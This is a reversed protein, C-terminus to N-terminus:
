SFKANGTQNYTATVPYNYVQHNTRNGLTSNNGASRASKRLYGFDAFGGEGSVKRRLDALDAPFLVYYISSFNLEPATIMIRRTGGVGLTCTDNLGQFYGSCHCRNTNSGADIKCKTDKGPV